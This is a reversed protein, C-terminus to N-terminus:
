HKPEGIQNQAPIQTQSMHLVLASHGPVSSHLSHHEPVKIRSYLYM